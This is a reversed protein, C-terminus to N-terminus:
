PVRRCLSGRFAGTAPPVRVIPPLTSCAAAPHSNRERIKFAPCTATACASKGTSTSRLSSGRRRTCLRSHSHCLCEQRHRGPPSFEGEEERVALLPQPVPVRAPAQQASLVGGGGRACGPTATACASKGTGTPRLSSGSRKTCLWSHSHCLCAQRPQMNAQDSFPVAGFPLAVSGSLTRPCSAWAGAPPVGASRGSWLEAQWETKSILKVGVQRLHKMIHVIELGRSRTGSRSNTDVSRLLCEHIHRFGSCVTPLAGVPSRLCPHM